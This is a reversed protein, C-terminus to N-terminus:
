ERRPGGRCERKLFELLFGERTLAFAVRGCFEDSSTTSDFFPRAVGDDEDAREFLVTQCKVENRIIEASKPNEDAM